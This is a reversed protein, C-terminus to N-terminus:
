SIKKLCPTLFKLFDLGKAAMKRKIKPIGSFVNFVERILESVDQYKKLDNEFESSEMGQVIDDTENLLKGIIAMFSDHLGIVEKTKKYKESCQAPCQDEKAIALKLTVLNNWLNEDNLELPQSCFHQSECPM